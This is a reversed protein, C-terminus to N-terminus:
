ARAGDLLVMLAAYGQRATRSGVKRQARYLANAVASYTVRLSEAIESNQLGEQLALRVVREELETLIRSDTAQMM